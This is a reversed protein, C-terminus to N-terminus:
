ANSLLKQHISRVEHNSTTEGKFRRMLTTRDIDYKLTTQAYNPKEQSRLDSIAKSIDKENVMKHYNSPLIHTRPFTHM